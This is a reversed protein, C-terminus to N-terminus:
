FVNIERRDSVVLTRARTVTEAGYEGVKLIVNDVYVGSVDEHGFGRDRGVNRVREVVEDACENVFVM